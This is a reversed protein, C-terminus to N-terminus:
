FATLTNNEPFRNALARSIAEKVVPNRLAWTYHFAQNEYQEAYEKALAAELRARSIRGVRFSALRDDVIQLCYEIVLKTAEMSLDDMDETCVKFFNTWEIKTVGELWPQPGTFFQVGAASQEALFEDLSLPRSFNWSNTENM